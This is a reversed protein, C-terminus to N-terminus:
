PVHMRSLLPTLEVALVGHGGPAPLALAAVVEGGAVDVVRLEVGRPRLLLSPLSLWLILRVFGVSQANSTISCLSMGDFICAIRVHQLEFVM